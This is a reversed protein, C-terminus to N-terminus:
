RSAGVAHDEAEIGPQRHRQGHHRPPKQLPSQVIGAPHIHDPGKGGAEGQGAHRQGGGAREPAMRQQGPQHQDPGQPKPQMHRQSDGAPWLIRTVRLHALISTCAELFLHGPQHGALSRDGAQERDAEIEGSGLGIWAHAGAIYQAHQDQQEAKAAFSQGIRLQAGPAGALGARAADALLTEPAEAPM